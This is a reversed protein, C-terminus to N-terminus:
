LLRCSPSWTSNSIVSPWFPGCAAFTVLAAYFATQTKPVLWRRPERAAAGSIEDGAHAATLNCQVHEEAHNQEKGTSSRSSREQGLERGGGHNVRTRRM